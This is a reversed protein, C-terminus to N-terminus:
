AGKKKRYAQKRAIVVKLPQDPVKKFGWSRSEAIAVKVELEAASASDEDLSKALVGLINGVTRREERHQRKKGKSINKRSSTPCEGYVNRRDRDLSLKKKQAPSKIRSV